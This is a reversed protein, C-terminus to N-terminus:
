KALFALIECESIQSGSGLVGAATYSFTEPQYVLMWISALVRVCALVFVRSRMGVDKLVLALVIIPALM